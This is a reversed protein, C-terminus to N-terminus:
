GGGNERPSRVLKDKAGKDMTLTVVLKLLKSATNSFCLSEGRVGEGTELSYFIRRPHLPM